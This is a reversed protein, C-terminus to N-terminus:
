YEMGCLIAVIEPYVFTVATDALIILFVGTVMSSTTARGVSRPDGGVQLGRFCGVVAILVAFVISKVLSEFVNAPGVAQVLRTVYERLSVDRLSVLVLAGGAVGLFDGIITLLPMVVMLAVVRPLVLLDLPRFGMTRMADIEEAAKMAGIEAAFASGARGACVIAVMMPGLERTIALGVLDVVYIDLGFKGLQTLAQYAMIVGVLFCILSIIPVADAGTQDIFYLCERWNLRWPKLLHRLTSRALSLAFRFMWKVDDAFKMSAAGVGVLLPQPRDNGDTGLSYAGTEDFGLDALVDGLEDGARTIRISVDTKACHDAWCKVLALAPSDTPTVGVLDFCLRGPHRRFHAAIREHADQSQEHSTGAPPFGGIFVVGREASVTIM